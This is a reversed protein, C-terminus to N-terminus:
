VSTSADASFGARARMRGRARVILVDPLCEADAGEPEILDLKWGALLGDPVVVAVVLGLVHVGDHGAGAGDNHVALLHGHLGSLEDRHRGVGYPLDAGTIAAQDEDGDAGCRPLAM